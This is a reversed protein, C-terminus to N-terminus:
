DLAQSIRVVPEPYKVFFLIKPVIASALAGLRPCNNAEKPGITNTRAITIPIMANHSPITLFLWVFNTRPIHTITAEYMAHDAPLNKNLAAGAIATMPAHPITVNHLALPALLM